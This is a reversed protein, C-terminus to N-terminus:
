MFSLFTILKIANNNYCNHIHEQLEFNGCLAKIYIECLQTALYHPQMVPHLNCLCVVPQLVPQIVPWAQGATQNHFRALM